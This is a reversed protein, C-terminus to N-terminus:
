EKVRQHIEASLRELHGIVTDCVQQVKELQQQASRADGQIWAEITNRLKEHFDQHPSRLDRFETHDGLLAAGTRDMWRWLFCSQHDAIDEQRLRHSGQLIEDRVELFRDQHSQRAAEVTAGAALWTLRDIQRQLHATVTAADQAESQNKEALQGLLKASDSISTVNNQVEETAEQVRRSLNRVEDAVVAFGRGHEGARAAEIAANLALLNTQYAIERISQAIRGVGAVQQILTNVGQQNGRISDGLQNLNRGVSTMADKVDSSIDSMTSASDITTQLARRKVEWTQREASNDTWSAHFALAEGAENHIATFRLLFRVKGLDLVSHHERLSGDALKRFIVRVREPDKHFQHISHGFAQRVDAGRLQEQLQGAYGALVETAVTNMYFIKNEMAADAECLMELSALPDLLLHAYTQLEQLQM